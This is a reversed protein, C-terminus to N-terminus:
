NENSEKKGWRRILLYAIFIRGGIAGMLEFPEMTNPKIIWISMSALILIAFIVRVIWFLKSFKSERM